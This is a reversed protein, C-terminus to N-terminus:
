EMYKLILHSWISQSVDWGYHAARSAIIDILFTSIHIQKKTQGCQGNRCDICASQHPFSLCHYHVNDKQSGSMFAFYLSRKEALAGVVVCICIIIIIIIICSLLVFRLTHYQVCFLVNSQRHNTFSLLFFGLHVLFCLIFVMRFFHLFFLFHPVFPKPKHTRAHM